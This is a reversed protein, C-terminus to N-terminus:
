RSLSLSARNTVVVEFVTCPDLPCAFLTRFRDHTRLAHAGQPTDNGLVVVDVRATRVWSELAAGDPVTPPVLLARTEPTQPFVQGLLNVSTDYGFAGGPRVRRRADAWARGSGDVSVCDARADPTMKALAVLSPGGGTLGPTALVLGGLAAVCLAGDVIRRSGRPFLESGAAVVALLAGATAITYRAWFAGPTVLPAIVVVAMWARADVRRARLVVVPALPLLVFAFVPGFGGLRMDFNYPALVTTWSALIRAMPSLGRLADPMGAQVLEGMTESGPLSFPGLAVRVPWIPNGYTLFNDFYSGMGLLALAAIGALKQAQDRTRVRLALTTMVLALSAPGSPKTAVYAAFTLGAAVTIPWSPPAFALYTASLFLAAFAIDVYNTAMQLYVVPLVAFTAGFLVSRAPSAGLRRSWAAVATAGVLAFPAQALDLLADDPSVFRWWAMFLEIARPYTNVYADHGPVAANWGTEVITHVIPLHYGLADWAWPELLFSSTAALCFAGIALAVAVWTALARRGQGFARKAIQRLEQVSARCGSRGALAALTAGVVLSAVAVSVASAAGVAALAGVIAIPALVSTLVAVMARDFARHDPAALFRSAVSHGVLVFALWAIPVLHYRLAYVLTDM